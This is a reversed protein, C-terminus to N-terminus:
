RQRGDEIWGLPAIVGYSDSDPAPLQLEITRGNRAIAVGRRYRRNMGFVDSVIGGGGSGTNLSSVRYGDPATDGPVVHRGALAEVVVTRVEGEPVARPLDLPVERVQMSTHDFLLLAWRQVYPVGVAPNVPRPVPRVLAEVRGDHVVFEV